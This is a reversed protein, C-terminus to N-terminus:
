WTLEKGAVFAITQRYELTTPTAKESTKQTANHRKQTRNPKPTGNEGAHQAPKKETAVFNGPGQRSSMANAHCPGPCDGSNSFYHIVANEEFFYQIELLFM